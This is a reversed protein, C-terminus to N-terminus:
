VRPTIIISFLGSPKPVIEHVSTNPAIAVATLNLLYQERLM